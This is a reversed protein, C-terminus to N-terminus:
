PTESAKPGPEAALRYVWATLRVPRVVQAAPVPWAIKVQIRRSEPQDASPDVSVELSAAPMAQRFEDSLEFSAVKEPNLDNWGLATLQEMLNGAEVTARERWRMARQLRGRVLQSELIVGALVAVLVIAVSVEILTVGRRSYVPKM